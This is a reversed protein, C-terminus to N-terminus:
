KGTKSISKFLNSDQIDHQVYLWNSKSEIKDKIRRYMDDIEESIIQKVEKSLASRNIAWFKSDIQHALVIEGSEIKKIFDIDNRLLQIGKTASSVNAQTKSVDKEFDGIRSEVVEWDEEEKLEEMTEIQYTTILAKM